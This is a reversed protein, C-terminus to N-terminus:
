DEKFFECININFIISLKHLQNLNFKKDSSMSEANTIFSPNSLGLALSVDLQTLNKEQRIKRVNKSINQHFKNSEEETIEAILM